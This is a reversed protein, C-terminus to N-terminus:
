SSNKDTSHIYENKGERNIFLISVSRNIRILTNQKIGNRRQHKSIKKYM